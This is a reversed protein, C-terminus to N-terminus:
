RSRSGEELVRILAERGPGRYGWRKWLQLLHSRVEPLTVGPDGLMM